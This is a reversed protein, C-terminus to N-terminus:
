VDLLEPAYWFGRLGLLCFGLGKTRCGGCVWAFAGLLIGGGGCIDGVLPWGNTILGLGVPVAIIVIGVLSILSGVLWRVVAENRALRQSLVALKRELVATKSASTVGAEGVRPSSVRERERAVSLQRQVETRKQREARLDARVAAERSEHEEREAVWERREAAVQEQLGRIKAELEIVRATFEAEKVQADSEVREVDAGDSEGEDTGLATDILMRVAMTEPYKEHANIRAIAEVIDAQNVLGSPCVSPTEQIDAMTKDYNDTRPILSRIIYAWNTLLIAFPLETTHDRNAEAFRTLAHDNTLVVYGVNSFRRRETGRLMEVLLRHKVDHEQLPRPKEPGKRVRELMAIQEDFRSRDDDIARCGESVVEVGEADLLLEIQEHLAFFDELSLGTERQMRRFAKIFIEDTDGDSALKALNQPSPRTRALRMRALRVSEQMETVTWPTVCVQYGLRFSQNLLRLIALYKEPGSLKLLSYVLNTDLYLRQGNTLHRVGGLAAPDLTFVSMLYATAMLNDFYRRQMSTMQEFFMVLADPRVMMVSPERDPLLTLSLAKIEYIYRAYHEHDPSLLIGAEVGYDGIIQQIWVALDEHLQALQQTGLSPARHSVAHEWEEFATAEVENSMRVRKALADSCADSLRKCSPEEILKEQKVLRRIVASVEEAELELGWL